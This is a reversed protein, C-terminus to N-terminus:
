SSNQQLSSFGNQLGSDFGNKTVCSRFPEPLDKSICNLLSHCRFYYVLAALCVKKSGCTFECASTLQGTKDEFATILREGKDSPKLNDVVVTEDEQFKRVFVQYGRKRRFFIGM